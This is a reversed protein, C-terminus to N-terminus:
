KEGGHGKEHHEGHHKKEGDDKGEHTCNDIRDQLEGMTMGHCDEVTVSEDYKLLELYTRYKGFSMDHQHAEHMCSSDSTYTVAGYSQFLANGSLEGVITESQESIVTFVLYSDEKLFRRYSENELLRVIAQMYSMNKLPVQGIVDMGHENYAKTSVVRGFRNVSLEISPNVDISIFSVPYRYVSYGGAGVFFFLTAAALVFRRAAYLRIRRTKERQKELYQLTSQKLEETAQIKEMSKRIRNM